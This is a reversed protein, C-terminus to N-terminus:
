YALVECNACIDLKRQWCADLEESEAVTRRASFAIVSDERHKTFKRAQVECIRDARILDRRRCPCKFIFFLHQLGRRLGDLGLATARPSVSLHELGLLSLPAYWVEMLRSRNARALSRNVLLSRSM